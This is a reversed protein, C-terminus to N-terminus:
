SGLMLTFYAPVAIYTILTVALAIQVSRAPFRRWLIVILVVAFTLEVLSVIDGFHSHDWYSLPSHFRWDTVPWFHSHADDHHFPFDLMLHLLAAAAFVILLPLRFLLAGLLLLAYIPASNGIAVLTQWPEQWYVDRWLEKEGVGVILREWAFMVFIALDPVLGGLLILLYHGRRPKTPDDPAKALAAAAVLLHTPTNM